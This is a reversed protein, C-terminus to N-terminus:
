CELFPLNAMRRDRRDIMTPIDRATEAQPGVTLGSRPSAPPDVELESTTMSPAVDSSEPEVGSTGDTESTISVSRPVSAAVSTTMHAVPCVLQEPTHTFAWVSLTLQPAQPRVQGEPWTHTAPEQV